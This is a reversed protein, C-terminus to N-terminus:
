GISKRFRTVAIGILAFTIVLLGITSPLVDWFDAGRVIIGRVINLFHTVPLAMSLLYLMGPMTERPAVFGSMLISPLMILMTYQLAQSQTQSVTSIVLGLSLTALIFPISLSVLLAISGAVRVDFVLFGLGLVIVMEILALGAYPVLKGIMLAMRSVPTVMLQELTGQERERVLSFATLSVTVVQLIVAILGPIMFNETRMTPNFLMTIRAEPEGPSLKPLPAFAIRARMAVQSDSGDIMVRVSPQGNAALERSYSPPIIVGIRATGARLMQVAEEPTQVYKIVDVYQTAHLREVYQRSERSQDLDVVVTSIHRVDFNIAFGFISLQILPILLAVVLSVRDRFIHTLEKKVISSFGNM